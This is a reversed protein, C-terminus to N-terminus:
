SLLSTRSKLSLAAMAVCCHFPTLGTDSTGLRLMFSM